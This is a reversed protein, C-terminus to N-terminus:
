IAKALDEMLIRSAFRTFIDYFDVVIQVDLLFLIENFYSLVVIRSSCMVEVVRCIKEQFSYPIQSTILCGIEKDLISISL